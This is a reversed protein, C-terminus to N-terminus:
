IDTYNSVEMDDVRINVAYDSGSEFLWNMRKSLRTLLCGLHTCNNSPRSLLHLAHTGINQIDFNTFDVAFFQLRGFSFVWFSQKHFLILWGIFFYFEWLSCSFHPGDMKLFHLVLFINFFFRANFNRCLILIYLFWGSQSGYNTDVPQLEANYSQDGYSYCHEFSCWCFKLARCIAERNDCPLTEFYGCLTALYRDYWLDM